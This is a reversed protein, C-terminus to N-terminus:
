QNDILIPSPGIMVCSPDTISAPEGHLILKRNMNLSSADYCYYDDTDTDWLLYGQYGNEKELHIRWINDDVVKSTFSADVLWDVLTAYALGEDTPSRYDDTSLRIYNSHNGDGGIDWAYWSFNEIGYAWQIIYSRAMLGINLDLSNTKACYAGETNWIPKHVNYKKLLDKVGIILPIQDEPLNEDENLYANDIIVKVNSEFQLGFQGKADNSMTVANLDIKNWNIKLTDILRESYITGTNEDKLIIRFSNILKNGTINKVRIYGTYTKHKKLEADIRYFYGGGNINTIEIIQAKSNEIGQNFTKGISFAPNGWHTHSWHYGRNDGSYWHFGDPYGYFPALESEFDGNKLINVDGDGAYKGIYLHWSIIDVCNGGGKILFEEMRQLGIATFNPSLIKNSSEEGPPQLIEKASCTLDFLGDNTGSYYRKENVENWIEWYRIRDNFEDYLKSVYNNWDLMDEPLSCAGAGGKCELTPESAVFSPTMGLTLLTQYNLTNANNIYNSIRTFNFSGDPQEIDLWRTSTDWLRLLGFNLVGPYDQFGNVDSGLKTGWKNIHLGFLSRPIQKTNVDPNLTEDTIDEISADDIWLIGKNSIKIAFEGYVDTDFGGELSLEQWNTNTEATQIAVVEYPVAKRRFMFIVQQSDNSSKLNIKARYTRGGEFIFDQRFVMKTTNLIEIDIQQSFDGTKVLTSESEKRFEIVPDGNWTKKSWHAALGGSNVEFGPNLILNTGFYADDIWIDGDSEVYFGFFGDTTETAIGKVSIERWVSNIVYTKSAYETYPEAQKRFVVRVLMKNNSKLYFSGRYSKNKELQVDQRYLFTAGNLTVELKQSCNDSHVYDPNSEKRFEVDLNGGWNTKSWHEARGDYPPYGTEFGENLLLNSSFGIDILFVSFILLASLHRRTM